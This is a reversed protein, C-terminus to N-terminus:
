ATVNLGLSQSIHRPVSVGAPPLDLGVYLQGQPGIETLVPEHKRKLVSMVHDVRSQCTECHGSFAVEFWLKGQDQVVNRLNSWGAVRVLM